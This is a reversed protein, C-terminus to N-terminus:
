PAPVSPWTTGSAAPRCVSAWPDSITSTSCRSSSRRSGASSDRPKEALEIRGLVVGVRPDGFHGLMEEAWTPPVVCDGDTFLLVDGRARDFALDLAAQKGTLGRPEGDSHIVRARDGVAACFEDLLHATGDPSRDDVFLFRVDGATQARLSELLRPLTQEENRVAVVVEAGARGASQGARRRRPASEAAM